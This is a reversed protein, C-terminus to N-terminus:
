NTTTTPLKGFNERVTTSDKEMLYIPRVEQHHRGSFHKSGYDALNTRGPKWHIHFQERVSRDRLWYFRMDMAKSRKQKVTDHILGLAVANDTQLPTPPQPYGMFILSTRYPCAEQANLFCAGFEAETASAMVNRMITSTVHVPGNISPPTTGPCNAPHTSLFFFGSARSRAKAESLYSADSHIHLVMDSAQYEVIADPHSAAYNLLDICAEATAETATSQQAAITSLACLMTNDVARAYYLFVGVIERITTIEKTPLPDSLDPSTFQVKAGHQPVAHQHPADHRRRTPQHLFRQLARKVYGPMSLQVTRKLYDWKLSLGCYQDGEWDTTVTYFEELTDLLHQANHEGTYQVGFDDVILCFMVPRTKHKFLGQTHPDQIYGAAELRPVLLDSALKAAQPLGYMGGDIRCYVFGNVAIAELDYQDIIAQPITKMPIRMFEPRLMEKTTLFFDKIDMGMFKAGPTSVVSNFLMKVTPLEATKSNVEFPYNIKDGGVTGRCRKTEAKFPRDATVLRFYTVDKRRDYPIESYPIFTMAEMGSNSYPKYGRVLRGFELCNAHDWEKGESSNLLEPYEALAGTDVNIAKNAQHQQLDPEFNDTFWDLLDFHVAGAAASYLLRPSQRLPNLRSSKRPPHKNPKM